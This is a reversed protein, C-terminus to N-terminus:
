FISRLYSFDTKNMLCKEVVLIVEKIQLLGSKRKKGSEGEMDQYKEFNKM